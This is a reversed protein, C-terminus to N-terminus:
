IQIHRYFCNGFKYVETYRVRLMVDIFSLSKDNAINVSYTKPIFILHWFITVYIFLIVLLLEFFLIKSHLQSLLWWVKIQKYVGECKYLCGLFRNIAFSLHNYLLHNLISVCFVENPPIFDRKISIHFLYIQCEKFSYLVCYM